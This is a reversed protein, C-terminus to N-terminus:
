IGSSHHCRGQKEVFLTATSSSVLDGNFVVTQKGQPSVRVIEDAGGTSLYATGDAQLSFDDLNGFGGALLEPETGEVSAQALALRYFTGRFGGTFYIYAPDRVPPVQLGNLGTPFAADPPATLIDPNSYFVGASKDVATPSVHYIIGRNSDALLLLPSADKGNAHPGKTTAPRLVAMGNLMNAEPIATLITVPPPSNEASNDAPPTWNRLDLSWVSWSGGIPSQDAAAIQGGSFAFIDDEYEAIGLSSNVNADPPFQYVLSVQNTTSRVTWIEGNDYRTILLDGNSRQTICELWTDGAPEWIVRAPPNSVDSVTPAAWTNALFLFSSLSTVAPLPVLM